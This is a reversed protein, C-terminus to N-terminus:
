LAKSRIDSCEYEGYKGQLRHAKFKLVFQIINVIVAASILASTDHIASYGHM